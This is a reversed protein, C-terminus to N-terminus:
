LVGMYCVDGSCWIVCEGRESKQGGHDLLRPRVWFSCMDVADDCLIARCYATTRDFVCKWRIRICYIRDAFMARVAVNARKIPVVSPWMRTYLVCVCVYLSDWVKYGLRRLCGCFFVRTLQQSWCVNAYIFAFLLHTTKDVNTFKESVFKFQNQIMKYKQKHIKRITLKVLWEMERSICIYVFFINLSVFSVCLVADVIAATPSKKDM